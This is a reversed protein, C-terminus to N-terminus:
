NENIDTLEHKYGADGITRLSLRFNISREIADGSYRNDSEQYAISFSTCSDDYAIGVGHSFLSSNEIDFSANGFVRFNETLRLSAAGRVEHRDEDFGYNPQADTFIYSTALALNQDVYRLGAEARRLNADAEDFRGSLGLSLGSGTSYDMSAVYDSKDTELGSELGANVVDRQAFSNQGHLHFSQGAVVNLSSGDNFSASYRFGINARTGGEVRDFGSFKDREFLNTTDFVFSQADENPFEGIRTEDPRAVIQAIPEFIHSGMSNSAVLPYRIELMAAPMGRWIQDNSTLPNYESNLRDTELWMGDARGSFSTTVLAGAVVSSAKWELEASARGYHGAIGHYREDTATLGIGADYNAIDVKERGIQTVNVDLSLQGGMVPTDSVVNYDLVPLVTAQQEQRLESGPYLDTGNFSSAPLQDLQEDQILYDKARLDFHNKGNLGTLYIENTIKRDSFGDLSYTRAFNGDTQWLGSWGFKWRPNITFRGASMIAMRESDAADITNADFEAPDQQDIGAIRFNYEGNHTRHRWEAEGLFGQNSYYTGTLTLDYNPALAWFYGQRVSFGLKESFDPQPFLFGSKRRISPDAHAFRPLYAIPKGFLEFTAGEYEVRQTTSNIIVRNARIQWLPPKSPNEKCPECATYVGNNFVSIEGDRREASEAAFRTNDATEVRLASVFGDQFNDTIDIEEAFVRNGKPEVIEVAGTAIVRGTGRDYTVREAVLTYGDYAIQVNGVAAVSNNVEDYILEDAELLMQAAPNVPTAGFFSDGSVQAVAPNTLALHSASALLTAALVLRVTGGMSRVAAPRERTSCAGQRSRVQGDPAPRAM